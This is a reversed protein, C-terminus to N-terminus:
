KKFRLYVGGIIVLIILYWLDKIQQGITPKMIRVVPKKTKFHYETEKCEVDHYIEKTLTDYFYELRVRENNIVQVTDHYEIITVTDHVYKPITDHIVVTITDVVGARRELKKILRKTTCGFLCFLLLCIFVCKNKM